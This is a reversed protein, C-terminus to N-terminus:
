FFNVFVLETKGKIGVFGMSQLDKMLLDLSAKELKSMGTSALFFGVLSFVIRLSQM